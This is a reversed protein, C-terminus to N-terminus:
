TLPGYFGFAVALKEFDDRKSLFEHPELQFNLPLVMDRRDSFKM